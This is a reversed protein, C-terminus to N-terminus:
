VQQFRSVKPARNEWPPCDVQKTKKSEQAENCGFRVWFMMATRPYNKQPDPSLNDLSLRRHGLDLFRNARDRKGRDDQSDLNAQSLVQGM